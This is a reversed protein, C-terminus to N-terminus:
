GPPSSKPDQRELGDLEDLLPRVAKRLAAYDRARMARGIVVDAAAMSNQAPVPVPFSWATIVRGLFANARDDELERPAFSTEGGAAQTIRAARNIILLDEGLLDDLNKLDVWNQTGDAQKSPLEVRM